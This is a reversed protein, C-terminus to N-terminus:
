AFYTFFSPLVQGADTIVNKGEKEKLTHEPARSPTCYFLPMASLGVVVGECHM